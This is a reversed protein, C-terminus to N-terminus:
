YSVYKIYPSEEEFAKNAPESMAPFKIFLVLLFDSTKFGNFVTCIYM